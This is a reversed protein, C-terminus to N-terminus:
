EESQRDLLDDASLPGEIIKYGDGTLTPGSIIWVPRDHYHRLLRERVEPSRDWAYIPEPAELDLPNYIAADAYDPARDGGMLILSRGFNVQEALQRVDSSGQRYHYYKDTVRWPIFTAWALM